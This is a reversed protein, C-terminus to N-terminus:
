PVPLAWPGTTRPVTKGRLFRGYSDFVVVAAAGTDPRYKPKGVWVACHGGSDLPVLAVAGAGTSVDVTTGQYTLSNGSVTIGVKALLPRMAPVTDPHGVILHGTPDQPVAAVTNRASYWDTHAPDIYVKLSRLLDGVQTTSRQRRTTLVRDYPDLSLLTPKEASPVTVTCRTQGPTPAINVRVNKDGSPTRVLLDAALRYPEGTFAVEFTAQGSEWKPNSVTFEPYGPRRLWQDFFWKLGPGCVAEFDSWNQQEGPKKNTLWQRMLEMMRDTGVEFELQQLVFGGKGYGLDSALGGADAGTGQVPANKYSPSADARSVFALRKEQVNGIAGERSYLADCFVAFSENWYTELYTNSAIGGFWTHAPEHADDDPLWGSGYTAYSYAELAGGVYLPTDMAGFQQFPYPYIRDFFEIVPPMFAIQDKLQDDNLKSSWAHYTIRGVKATQHAFPGASFSLYSVPVDMKYRVVKQDGTRNESVLDGQAVVHWDAPVTSATTFTAPLRGISPWWYDNTLLVENPRIVGAFRHRDVIASYTLTYTSKEGQFAPLSVVGGAQKFRVNQGSADKVSSVVYNEGLRVFFAPGAAPSKEFTTKATVHATKKDPEFSLDFDIHRVRVGRTDREHVQSTLRGAVVEFVQDGYDQTTLPTTFVVFVRGGAVDNLQKAQWGKSGTGFAGEKTLFAFKGALAPDAHAEVEAPKRAKAWADFEEITATPALSALIFAALM